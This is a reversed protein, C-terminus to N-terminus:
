CGPNPSPLLAFASEYIGKRVDDCLVLWTFATPPCFSSPDFLEVILWWQVVNDNSQPNIHWVYLTIVISCLYFVLSEFKSFIRCNLPAFSLFFETSQYKLRIYHNQLGLSRSRSKLKVFVDSVFLICKWFCHNVWRVSWALNCSIFLGYEMWLGYDMWQLFLRIM